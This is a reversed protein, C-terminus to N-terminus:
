LRVRRLNKLGVLTNASFKERLLNKGVNRVIKPSDYKKRENPISDLNRKFFLAKVFLLVTNIRSALKKLFTSRKEDRFFIYRKTLLVGKYKLSIIDVILSGTTLM